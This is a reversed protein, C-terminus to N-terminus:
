TDSVVLQDSPVAAEDSEVLAAHTEAVLVIAAAPLRPVARHRQRGAFEDPAKQEVNQRLPEM